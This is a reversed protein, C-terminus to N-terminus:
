WFYDHFGLLLILEQLSVTMSQLLREFHKKM